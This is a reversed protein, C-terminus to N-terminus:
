CLPLCCGYCCCFCYCAWCGLSRLRLIYWGAQQITKEAVVARSKMGPVPCPSRYEQASKSTNSGSLFTLFSLGPPSLSHSSCALPLPPSATHVRACDARESVRVCISAARSKSQHRCHSRTLQTRSRCQATLRQQKPAPCRSANVLQPGLPLLLPTDVGM